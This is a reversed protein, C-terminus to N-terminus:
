GPKTAAFRLRVYDVHWVDDSDCLVPRLEEWLEALVGARRATPIVDFYVQCFTELWDRIDGPLPTPRPFLEIHDVRFGQTALLESYQEVDPFFWPQPVSLSLESLRTEIATTISAVNGYGGFEGVFRGGPKLARWVGAIVNAPQDMWHLAANSFVANFESEFQLSCADAVKAELGLAKAAAIMEASADIGLVTCEYNMLRATLAGDGCGLDLIYEGARPALLDIVPAGLDSVFRAHKAYRAPDWGQDSVPM